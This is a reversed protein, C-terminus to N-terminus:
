RSNGEVHWEGQLHSSKHRTDGFAPSGHREGQLNSSRQRTDGFGRSEHWHGRDRHANRGDHDHRAMGHWGANRSGFGHFGSGRSAMGGRNSGKRWAGISGPAHFAGISGGRGGGGRAVADTWAFFTGVLVAAAAIMAKLM